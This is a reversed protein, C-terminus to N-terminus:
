KPEQLGQDSSERARQDMVLRWWLYFAALAFFAWEVAYFATLWNIEVEQQRIGITIPELDHEIGSQLILYAPYSAIPDQSYINVLQGLAVSDLDSDVPRKVPESPEVYGVASIEVNELKQQAAKVAELDESFGIALTLSAEDVLSNTILWYGDRTSGDAELQLRGGVINSNQSDITATFTALRDYVPKDIPTNPAILEALPRPAAEEVSVGVTNFTRSLQWQMAFSFAAATLM